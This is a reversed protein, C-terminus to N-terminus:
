RLVDEFNLENRHLEDRGGDYQRDDSLFYKEGSPSVADYSNAVRSLHKWTVKGCLIACGEIDSISDFRGDLKRLVDKIDFGMKVINRSGWNM